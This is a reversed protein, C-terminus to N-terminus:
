QIKADTNLADNEKSDNDKADDTKKELDTISSGQETKEKSDDVADAKMKSDKDVQSYEVTDVAKAKKEELEKMEEEREKQEKLKNEEEALKQQDAAAKKAKEEEFKERKEAEEQQRSVKERDILKFKPKQVVDTTCICKFLPVKIADFSTVETGDMNQEPGIGYQKYIRETYGNRPLSPFEYNKLLPCAKEPEVRAFLNRLKWYVKNAGGKIQSLCNNIRLRAKAIKLMAAEALKKKQEADAGSRLRKRKEMEKKLEVQKEIKSEEKAISDHVERLQGSIVDKAKEVEAMKKTIEGIDKINLPPEGQRENAQLFTIRDAPNRHKNRYKLQASATTALLCSALLFAIVVQRAM